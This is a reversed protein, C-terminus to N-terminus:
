ADSAIDASLPAATSVLAVLESQRHVGTKQFIRELYTRGSSYSIGADACSQQLTKGSCIAIALRAEAPALDFLAGILDASPAPGPHRPVAAVVLHDGNSFVDHASRRVPLVHVVCRPVPGNGRVPISRLSLFSGSADASIAEQVLRNATADAIFLKGFAAPLFVDDLADLSENTALVRGSSSLVAAPLGLRQLTSTMTQARELRLRAAIVGSRALHPRVANLAVLENPSPRDHALWREMAFLVVEGTPFTIFTGVQGGIGMVRTRDTRVRNGDLIEKPFYDADYVFTAPPIQTMMQRLIDCEPWANESTIAELVPEILKTAAFKPTKPNDIIGVGGAASNSLESLTQLVDPWHEPIFAAEYIREVLDESM